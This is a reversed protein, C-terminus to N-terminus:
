KNIEAEVLQQLADFNEKGNILDESKATLEEFKKTVSDDETMSISIMEQNYRTHKMQKKSAWSGISVGLYLTAAFKWSCGDFRCAEFFMKDAQRRQEYTVNPNSGEGVFYDHVVSARRYAGVFPPGITSWLPKPITAGNIEANIPVIWKKNSKDIFYFEETLYMLRFGEWRTKPYGSFGQM